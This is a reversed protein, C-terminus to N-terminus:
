SASRPVVVTKLRLGQIALWTSFTGQTVGLSKAAESVSGHEEVSEVLVQKLPKNHIREVERSKYKSGM